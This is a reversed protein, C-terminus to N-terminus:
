KKPVLGLLRCADSCVHSQWFARLGREGQDTRGLPGLTPQQQHQSDERRRHRRSHIAPDTLVFERRGDPERKLIGQLDVVMLEGKSVKYTFHSFAQPIDEVRINAYNCRCGPVPHKMEVVDDPEVLSDEDDEEEDITPLDGANYRIHAEL